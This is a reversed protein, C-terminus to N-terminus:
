IRADIILGLKGGAIQASLIKKNMLKATISTFTIDTKSEPVPIVILSGIKIQYQKEGIGITIFCGPQLNEPRIISGLNKRGFCNSKFTFVTIGEPKIVDIFAGALSQLDPVLELFVEPIDIRKLNKNYLEGINLEIIKRLFVNNFLVDEKTQPVVQPYLIKNGIENELITRDKKLCLWSQLNDSDDEELKSFYGSLGLFVPM